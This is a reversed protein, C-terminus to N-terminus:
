CAGASGNVSGPCFVSLSLSGRTPSGVDKGSLSFSVVRSAFLASIVAAFTGGVIPLTLGTLFLFQRSRGRMVEFEPLRLLLSVISGLFGFCTGILIRANDSIISRISAFAENQFAVLPFATIYTLTIMGAVFFLLGRMVEGLAASTSAAFRVDSEIKRAVAFMGHEFAALGFRASCYLDESNAKSLHSALTVYQALLYQREQGVKSQTPGDYKRPESPEVLDWIQQEYSERLDRIKEPDVVVVAATDTKTTEVSESVLAM